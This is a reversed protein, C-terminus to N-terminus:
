KFIQFRGIFPLEKMEGKYAHIAGIIVLIVIGLYVLQMVQSIIMLFLPSMYFVGYLINSVFHIAIILILLNLQQGAHFRVYPINKTKEDILPLFFLFPLVYSLMTMTKYESFDETSKEEPGVEFGEKVEQEVEAEDAGDVAKKNEENSQTEPEM